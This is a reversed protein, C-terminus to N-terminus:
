SNVAQPQRVPRCLHFGVKSLNIVWQNFARRVRLMREPPIESLDKPRQDLGFRQYSGLIGAQAKPDQQSDDPNWWHNFEIAPNTEGFYVRFLAVAVDIPGDAKSGFGHRAELAAVDNYFHVWAQDPDLRLQNQRIDVQGSELVWWPCAWELSNGGNFLIRFAIRDKGQQKASHEAERCHQLVDRQPVQPAAWVFGVSVSIPKPPLPKGDQSLGRWLNSDFTSFFDWCVAPQIQQGKEYLVGLFDDGGAYIMRGDGPLLSSQQHKLARGWQRMTDSFETLKESEQTKGALKKLYNGANDGDGQFWGTWYKPEKDGATRKRNLDKFSKPNLERAIATLDQREENLSVGLRKQYADMVTNAVSEHTVMRKVLEPVSLEENPDIFAELLESLKIYFDRIEQKQNQYSAHRPTIFGLKPWAVADAGSLTSSEGTWNVGTWGRSRKKANLRQRVEGISEGPVGQVWFFEWAYNAWLGWDRQWYYPTDIRQEIWERCTTVVTSWATDFAEQAAAEPFGGEIIIQNPLGQAVKILAPSIVRYGDRQARFCVAWSLFSLLYSSGYLDRLKRSKEIFGQVPAYTIATYTLSTM